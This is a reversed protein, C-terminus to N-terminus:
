LSFIKDYLYMLSLLNSLDANEYGDQRCPTNKGSTPNTKNTTSKEHALDDEEPAYTNIFKYFLDEGILKKCLCIAIGAQKDYASENMSRAKTMTGDAFHLMSVPGNFSSGKLLLDPSINMDKWIAKNKKTKGKEAGDTPNSLMSLFFDEMSLNNDQNSM